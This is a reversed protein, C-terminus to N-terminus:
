EEMAFTINDPGTWDMFEDLYKKLIKLSQCVRDIHDDPKIEVSVIKTLRGCEGKIFLMM